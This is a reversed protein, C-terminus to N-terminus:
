IVYYDDSSVDEGEGNILRQINKINEKALYTYNTVTILFINYQMSGRFTHSAM